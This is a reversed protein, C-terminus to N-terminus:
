LELHIPKGGVRNPKNKPNKLATKFMIINKVKEKQYNM